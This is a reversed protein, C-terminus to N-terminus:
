FSNTVEKKIDLISSNLQFTINSILKQIEVFSSEDKLQSLDHTFFNSAVWLCEKVVFEKGHGSLHLNLTKLISCLNSFDASLMYVQSGFLNGLFLYIPPKM